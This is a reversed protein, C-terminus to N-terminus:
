EYHPLCRIMAGLEDAHCTVLLCGQQPSVTKTSVQSGYVIEKRISTTVALGMPSLAIGWGEQLPAAPCARSFMGQVYM